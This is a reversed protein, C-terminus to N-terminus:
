PIVGLVELKLCLGLLTKTLSGLNNPVSSFAEKTSQTVPANTFVVGPWMHSDPHVENELILFLAQLNDQSLSKDLVLHFSLPEPVSFTLRHM